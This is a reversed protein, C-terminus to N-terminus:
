SEASAEGALSEMQRDDRVEYWVQIWEGLRVAQVDGPELDDTEFRLSEEGHPRVLFHDASVRTVLGYVHRTEADASAPEATATESTDPMDTTLRLPYFREVKRYAVQIREGSRLDALEEADLERTIEFAMTEGALTKLLFVDEGVSTVYGTVDEREAATAPLAVAPILLLFLTTLITSRTM